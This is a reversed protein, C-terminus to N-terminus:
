RMVPDNQGIAGARSHPDDLSTRPSHSLATVPKTWAEAGAHDRGIVADIGLGLSAPQGIQPFSIAGPLGETM